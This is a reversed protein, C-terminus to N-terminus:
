EASLTIDHCYPRVRELRLVACQQYSPHAQLINLKPHCNFNQNQHVYDEFTSIEERPQTKGEHQWDNLKQRKDGNQNRNSQASSRILDTLPQSM